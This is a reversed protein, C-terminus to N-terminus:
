FRSSDGCRHSVLGGGVITFPEVPGPIDGWIATLPWILLAPVAFGVPGALIWWRLDVSCERLVTAQLSTFVAGALPLGLILGLRLIQESNEIGEAAAESWYRDFDMGFALAFLVYLFTWFGLAMGAGNIVIWKAWDRKTM